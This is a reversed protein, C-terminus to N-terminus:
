RGWAYSTPVPLDAVRVRDSGDVASTRLTVNGDRGVTQFVQDNSNCLWTASDPTWSQCYLGHRLSPYADVVTLGSGDAHVTTPRNQNLQSGAWLNVLLTTSDSSWSGMGMGGPATVQIQDTDDPDVIVLIGSDDPGPETIAIRQGRPRRVHAGASSPPSAIALVSAESVLVTLLKRM